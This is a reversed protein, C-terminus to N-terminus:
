EVQPNKGQRLLVEEMPALFDQLHVTVFPLRIRVHTTRPGRGFHEALIKGLQSAMPREIEEPKNM